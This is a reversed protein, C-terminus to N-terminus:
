DRVREQNSSVRRGFSWCYCLEGYGHRILKIDRLSKLDLACFTRVVNGKHFSELIAFQEEKTKAERLSQAIEKRESGDVIKECVLTRLNSDMKDFGKFRVRAIREVWATTNIKKGTGRSDRMYKAFRREYGDNYPRQYCTGPTFDFTGEFYGPKSEELDVAANFSVLHGDMKIM